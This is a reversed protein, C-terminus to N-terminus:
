DVRLCANDYYMLLDPDEQLVNEPLREALSVITKYDKKQWADAFGARIAETRFQKLNRKGELYYSFERLLAKNRIKELDTTKSPNPVYWKGQEDELFNQDLLNTLEPLLEHKAQNLLQLFQPQIEQYTQPTGGTDPDLQQRLWQIATKEDNVFLTLQAISDAELRARDYGAVQDPLFYMGDRSPFRESIGGLFEAATLPITIVRQIHFAVMRDFLLFAQRERVIELIGNKQVVVPLQSLHQRVFAWVGEPTGVQSEFEREFHITPKYASIILDQKVANASMAQQFSRQRKDLARVDAIIFGSYLIAQQIANWVSNKSNHFEVTMWRGPKLSRYYIAFCDEMMRQYDIFTKKRVRDVIVEHKPATLVKHWSELLINLDSYYINEGFPPDTFIYDLSNEAIELSGLDETTIISINKQGTKEQFAEVLRKLKGELNYWPSVESILSAAYFVGSMARNVQSGGLRGHQVPQYRNLISMGSIAQEVFFLLFNKLRLDEQKNALRWLSALAHAQRPLFFHHIHSVKTTKMRGVHAMQMNPLKLNPIEDPSQLAQIKELTEIDNRDPRKEFKNKRVSYNILVPVRRPQLSVSDIIPDFQSNFLLELDKKQIVIGCHPCPFEDKVSGKEKDFAEHYFVIEQSCSNCALVESWVTYNIKAKVRHLDDVNPHWTEYMWGLEKEVEKLTQKAQREFANIDIPTNYNHAIFTAIPSLDNLIVHRYGLRSIPEIDGPKEFVWDSEDVFYGLKEIETRVGCYQAAIGTMGTGCFGDFVIDGPNTYHLIFRMIASHPVKTHYAHARYIPSTKGESIDVALPERHYDKNNEDNLMGLDGQLVLRKAQWDEIIEALFPNPCATYYPPDSLALIADDEAIPFGKINRFVPDKLKEALQQRYEGKKGKEEDSISEEPNIDMLHPQQPM